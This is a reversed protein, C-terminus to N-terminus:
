ATRRTGNTAGHTRSAPSVGRRASRSAAWLTTSTASAGASTIRTGTYIRPGTAEHGPHDTPWSATTQNGADDYAYTETWNAAHVATVRGAADVDFTRPGSLRDDIGILNGDARYAYARHQIQIPRVDATSTVSQTALRGMADFANALTINEGVQRALERGVADYTFDINRGSATLQTRRGTADYTWTSTAGTPTTRGNRRGLEDYSYALVRGNVTESRLRGFRDRLLTLASGDPGTAEALQDTLDYAFTSIRGDADKLTTQGLANREFSTTQGLANTRSM